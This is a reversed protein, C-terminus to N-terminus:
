SSRREGLSCVPGFLKSNISSNRELCPSFILITGTSSEVTECGMDETGSMDSGECGMDETGSMDSGECGMDETESVNDEVSDETGSEVCGMDETVAGEETASVVDDEVAGEETVSVVDDEVAGEETVSVVDDEVAGEETISFNLPLTALTSAAIPAPTVDNVSRSVLSKNEESAAIGPAVDAVAAIGPAFANGGTGTGARGAGAGARGDVGKSSLFTITPAGCTGEM